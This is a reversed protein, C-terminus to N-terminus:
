GRSNPLAVEVFGMMAIGWAMVPEAIMLGVHHEADAELLLVM